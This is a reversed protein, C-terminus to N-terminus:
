DRDPDVKGTKGKGVMDKQNCVNWFIRPRGRKRKTVVQWEWLKKLWRENSMQRMHGYWRLRKAEITEVTDTDVEAM